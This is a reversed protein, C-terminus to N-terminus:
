RVRAGAAGGRLMARHASEHHRANGDPELSGARHIIWIHDQADVSVGITQGLIWHNPLPKPWLPDVEFRPAQVGAAAALAREGLAASGAWLAALLVVLAAGGLYKEANEWGGTYTMMCSRPPASVVMQKRDGRFQSATIVQWVRGFQGVTRKSLGASRGRSNTKCLHRPCSGTARNALIHADQFPDHIAHVAARRASHAPGRPVAIDDVPRSVERWLPEVLKLADVAGRPPRFGFPCSSSKM